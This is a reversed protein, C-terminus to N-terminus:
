ECVFRRARYTGVDMQEDWELWTAIVATDASSAVAARSFLIRSDKPAQYVDTLPFKQAGEDDFIIFGNAAGSSDEGAVAVFGNGEVPRAPTYKLPQGEFIPQISAPQAAIEWPNTTSLTGAFYTQPGPDSDSGERAKGFVLLESSSPQILATVSSETNELFSVETPTADLNQTQIFVSTEGEWAFIRSEGTTVFGVFPATPVPSTTYVPLSEFDNSWARLSYTDEEVPSPLCDFNESCGFGEPPWGGCGGGSCEDARQVCVLAWKAVNQSLDLAYSHLWIYESYDSCGHDLMWLSKYIITQDSVFFNWQVLENRSAGFIQLEGDLVRMAGISQIDRYETHRLLPGPNGTSNIYRVLLQDALGSKRVMAAVYIGDPAPAVLLEASKLISRPGDAAAEEETFINFADGDPTCGHASPSSGGTASSLGGTAPPDEGKGGGEGLASGGQGGGSVPDSDSGMSRLAYKDFEGLWTCGKLGVMLALAQVAFLASRAKRRSAM